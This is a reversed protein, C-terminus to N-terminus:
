WIKSYIDGDINFDLWISREYGNVFDHNMPKDADFIGFDIANDGLPNEKDYIWGMTQGAKTEPFGLMAYVENLFLYGKARLRKNAEEERMLLFNKNYEANKKWYPNGNDFCRSFESYPDQKVDVTEKVTDVTGDENVVTREIEETKINHRLEFDTREGFREVVRSRYDKFLTTTTALAAGLSANRKRLIHNAGLFCFLTATGLAIAPAYLKALEVGTNVYVATVNKTYEQETWEQGEPLVLEGEKIKHCKDIREQAKDLVEDLERTAKCATFITAGFTVVGTAALIEPSHKKVKLGFMSLGRKASELNIKM